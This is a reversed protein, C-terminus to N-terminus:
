QDDEILEHVTVHGEELQRISREHVRMNESNQWTMEKICELIREFAVSAKIRLWNDRGRHEVATSFMKDAFVKRVRRLVDDIDNEFMDTEDPIFTRICRFLREREVYESLYCLDFM